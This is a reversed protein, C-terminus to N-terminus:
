FFPNKKFFREMFPAHQMFRQYVAIQSYKKPFFLNHLPNILPVLLYFM